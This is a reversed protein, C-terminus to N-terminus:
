CFERVSVRTLAAFNEASDTVTMKVDLRSMCASVQRAKGGEIVTFTRWGTRKVHTTGPYYTDSILEVSTTSTTSGTAEWYPDDVVDLVGAGQIHPVLRAAVNLTSSASTKGCIQIDMGCPWFRSIWTHPFLASYIRSDGDNPFFPRFGGDEDTSGTWNVRHQPSMDILVQLNQRMEWTKLASVPMDDDMQTVPGRVFYQLPSNPGSM